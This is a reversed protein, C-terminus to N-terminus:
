PYPPLTIKADVAVDVDPSMNPRSYNYHGKIQLTYEGGFPTPMEFLMLVKESAGSRPLANLHNASQPPGKPPILSINQSQVNTSAADFRVSGEMVVYVTDSPAQRHLKPDDGRLSLKDVTFTLGGAKIPAPSPTVLPQGTVGPDKGKLPVRAQHHKADGFVLVAKEPDFTAPVRNIVVTVAARSGALVSTKSTIRGEAIGVSDQELRVDESLSADTPGQNEGEGEITLSKKQDDVTASTLTVKFGTFWATRDLTFPPVLGGTIGKATGSSGSASTPPRSSSVAGGGLEIPDVAAKEATVGPSGGCASALAVVAILAAIFGPGALAAPWAFGPGALAAPWAFGPGALAAPWAFTTRAHSRSRTLSTV